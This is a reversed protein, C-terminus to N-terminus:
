GARHVKIEDTEDGSRTGATESLELQATVKRHRKFFRKGTRTLTLSLVQKQGAAVALRGGTALTLTRGQSQRTVKATGTVDSTDGNTITGSLRSGKVKWSYAVELLIENAEGDDQAATATPGPTSPHSVSSALATASPVGAGLTLALLLPLRRPATM